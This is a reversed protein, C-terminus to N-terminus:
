KPLIVNHEEVLWDLIASRTDTWQKGYVHYLWHIKQYWEEPSLTALWEQNTM